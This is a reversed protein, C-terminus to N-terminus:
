AAGFGSAGKFLVMYSYFLSGAISINIGCFNLYTFTYDSFFMMSAYTAIINKTAGVVATTLPSNVTTCLFISYNLVSGMSASLIFNFVFSPENWRPYNMVNTFTSPIYIPGTSVMHEFLFYLFMIFFSFLSNYYLVSIKGCGNSISAKKLYVGNLATFANNLIVLLYGYTDFSLDYLAAVFAGGVMLFVSFSIANSPRNGLLWWEGLMTLLISFRRLATFMPISLAKTSGLGTLINGLFMLTVPIVQKFLDITLPPVELRGISKLFYIVFSTVFFQMMALFTFYEFNYQTMVAKNVFIMLISSVSYFFATFLKWGFSSIAFTNSPKDILTSTENNRDDSDVFKNDNKKTYM